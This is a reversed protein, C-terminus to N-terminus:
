TIESIRPVISGLPINSISTCTSEHLIRSYVSYFGLDVVQKARDIVNQAMNPAAVKIMAIEPAAM